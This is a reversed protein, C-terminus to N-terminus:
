RFWQLPSIMSHFFSKWRQPWKNISTSLWFKTYIASVYSSLFGQEIYIPSHKYFFVTIWTYFLPYFSMVKHIKIHFVSFYFDKLWVFSFMYSYIDVNVCNKCELFVCTSRIAKDLSLNKRTSPRNWMNLCTFVFPKVYNFSLNYKIHVLLSNFGFRSCKNIDWWINQM